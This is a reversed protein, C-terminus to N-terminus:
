LFRRKKKSLAKKKACIVCYEDFIPSVLDVGLWLGPIDYNDKLDLKRKMLIFERIEKASEKLDDMDEKYTNDLEKHNIVKSLMHCSIFVLAKLLSTRLTKKLFDSNSKM